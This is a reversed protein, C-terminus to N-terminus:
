VSFARFLASLTFTITTTYSEATPSSPFFQEAPMDTLWYRGHGNGVTASLVTISSVGASFCQNTGKNVGTLPGFEAYLTGNNPKPCMKGLNGDSGSGNYDLQNPHEGAGGFNLQAWDQGAIALTWGPSTNRDDVVELAGISTMTSTQSTFLVNLAADFSNTTSATLSFAGSPWSWATNNNCDTNLNNDSLIDNGPTADSRAVNVYAVSTQTGSVNLLWTGSSLSSNRFYVKTGSAQGNWNINTFTYTSGSHYQIFVSATTITYIHTSTADTAFIVGPTFSTGCGPDNTGSVNTISLDYFASSSTMTGSLTQQAAGSLTVLGNEANFTGNNTWNGKVVLPFNSSSSVDLTGSNILLNGNITTSNGLTATQGSDDITLNVYTTGIVTQGASTNTYSVTNGSATATLTTITPMSGSFTLQASSGQTLTTVTPATSTISLGTGSTVNNTLATITFANSGGLSQANTDFTYTGSGSTFTNSSNNALGGRFTAPMAVSFTWTGGSNVTVGGIFTLSGTTVTTATLTGTVSTTGTVTIANAANKTLTSGTGISLNGSITTAASLTWNATGSINVDQVSNTGGVLACTKTGSGSFNLTQYSVVKCTQATGNYNVTNANTSADFTTIAVANTTGGGANLTSGSGQTWGGAGSFTGTITVTGNNLFTGATVTMTAVSITGSNTVATGASTNLTMTGSLTLTGAGSFTQSLATVSVSAIAMATTSTLVGSATDMTVTGTITVTGSTNVIGARAIITTAAGSLTGGTLTVLGILTKNGTSSTLSLTGSSIGTTGSVQFAVAGTTLTGGSVTLNGSITLATTHTWTATGGMDVNGLVPSTPTCTKAGSGAFNLTYYQATFCTQTGSRSYVVTNSNTHADFTTTDVCSTFTINGSFTLSSGTGQLWKGTCTFSTGSTTVTGSNTVTKGSTGVVITAIAITGNLSQDNTQFTATGTLSVTGASSQTIGAEFAGNLGAGNLTGGSVTVLGSFLKTGTGAPIALTGSSVTTTTTVTSTIAATASTNFTGGNVTLSNTTFNFAGQTLAGASVTTSGSVALTAGTTWTGSGSYVLNGTVTTTACTKTGSGGFSLNVYNQVKCTQATGNYNITNGSATNTLTGTSLLSTTNGGFNLTSNAANVWTSNSNGGTIGGTGTTTVTGNNTISINSAIAITGAITINATSAFNAAANLTVTGSNSISKAGAGQADITCAGSLTTGGSGSFTGDVRFGATGTGTCSNTLLFTGGALTAGNDVMLGTVTQAAALTTTGATVEVDPLSTYATNIASTGNFKLLTHGTFSFSAASGGSITGVDNWTAIGSTSFLADGATGALTLGGNTDLTGTSLTIRAKGTANTGGTLTTLGTTTLRCTLMDFTALGTSTSNGTIGLTGTISFTGSGGSACTVATNGTSTPAAIVVNGTNVTLNGTGQMTITQANASSNATNTLATGSGTITLTQGTAITIGNNGSSPNALTVSTVSPNNASADVTIIVNTNITITDGSAPIGGAGSCGTWNSGVSWNGSTTANCAAGLVTNIRPPINLFTSIRPWGFFLWSLAVLIIVAPRKTIYSAVRQM